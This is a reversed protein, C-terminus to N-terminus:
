LFRIWSALNGLDKFYLSFLQQRAVEPCPFILVMKTFLLHLAAKYQHEKLPRRVGTELFTLFEKAEHLDLTGAKLRRGNEKAM